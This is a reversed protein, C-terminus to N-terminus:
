PKATDLFSEPPDLSCQRWFGADSIARTALGKVSSLSAAIQGGDASDFVVVIGQPEPQSAGLNGYARLFASKAFALKEKQSTALTPNTPEVWEIRVVKGKLAAWNGNFPGTEERAVKFAMSNRTDPETASSAQAFGAPMELQARRIWGRSAGSIQVHVWNGEIGLIQFEDQSDATMLVQAAEAPKAYIPTQARKVAALDSPHSQNRQIEELNKIYTSLEQSKKEDAARREKVSEATEGPPIATAGDGSTRANPTTSHPGGSTGGMTTSTSSPQAYRRLDGSSVPTNPSPSALPRPSASNPKGSALQEEIRDLADNELRGNSALVRYGSQATDRATFWATVKAVVRVVTGGGPAESIQFTCDYYGKDYKELQDGQQVFGDLTPLRGKSTVKLTQVAAKVETVSNPFTRQYVDSQAQALGCCLLLSALITVSALRPFYPASFASIYSV